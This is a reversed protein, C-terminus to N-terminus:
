LTLNHLWPFFIKLVSDVGEFYKKKLVIFVLVITFGAVFSLGVGMDYGVSEESQEEENISTSIPPPSPAFEPWSCKKPLPCGWLDPNSSYSSKNFTTMHGGQPINGSLHNNSFNLAGLYSLSGLDPPIQGSFHNASLDLSELWILQVISNPIVGSFNNMSLNLLKLGKLKGVDSPLDGNLHNNSLDIAMMTPFIYTYHEDRGKSNMTLGIKYTYFMGFSQGVIELQVESFEQHIEVLMAQLSFISYPILGSLQNSSLDLIQLNKLQGIEAPINGEFHNKRMALVKLKTLNGISKPIQGKFFNQGVDLLHLATCNSISPSLSRTLQNNKILLSQLESLKSFEYPIMGRLHNDGLNLNQLESCNALSPPIIGNLYNNALNVIELSCFGQLQPPINGTLFNENLLLAEINPPWISPIQGSLANRSVDLVVLSNRASSNLLLRGELHNATLNIYQISMDFLWSPIEGVLNNDPLELELLSFQTSIWLPIQGDVKCSTMFLSGLQFSPIWTSSINVECNSLYLNDLKSLNHLFAESIMHQDDLSLSLGEISSPLVSSAISQNFANGDAYLETLSSLRSFSSPLTGNLHNYSLDMSELSSLNGFSDPISGSLSNNSVDFYKLSSLNGLSYPINGSLHNGHIDLSILSSLNGLCSPLSGNLQNTSLDIESLNSLLCINSLATEGEFNNASLDLVALSSSLPINGSLGNGSLHLEILSSLSSLCSPLSGNLQNESLDIESLNSLLCINSLATEGEFNNYSLDLVALSSSLPINGSLMNYPLHLEKLSSLNGVCSPLSGNLQNRSLYIKSLNSLLCISSLVTEGELVNDELDLFPLSSSLHLETLSSLYGLCSPLSGNLLNGSLDVVSLNSLLCISSLVTEAELENYSLDLIALSSLNVFCPPLTGTLGMYTLRITALSTLTCLSKSIVGGYYDGHIELSVVHRATNHCSIDDWLCCDGGKEWSSLYSSLFSRSSYNIAAKFQLLADRETHFCGCCFPLLFLPILTILLLFRATSRAM